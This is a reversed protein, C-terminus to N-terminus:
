PGLSVIYDGINLSLYNLVKINCLCPPINPGFLLSKDLTSGNRELVYHINRVM